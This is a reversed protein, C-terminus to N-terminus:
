ENEDIMMRQIMEPNCKGPEHIKQLPMAVVIIEYVDWSIDYGYGRGQLRKIEDDIGDDAIDGCIKVVDEAEVHMTVDDLCRDCSVVVDGTISLNLEFVENTHEKVAMKVTVEGGLIEEQELAAFFDDRLTLEQCSGMRAAERLDINTTVGSPMTPAFNCKKKCGVM